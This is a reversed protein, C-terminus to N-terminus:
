AGESSALLGVVAKPSTAATLEGCCVKRAYTNGYTVYSNDPISGAAKMAKVLNKAVDHAYTDSLTIAFWGNTALYATLPIPSSRIYGEAEALNDFSKVQIHRHTFPGSKLSTSMSGPITCIGLKVVAEPETGVSRIAIGNPLRALTSSKGDPLVKMPAVGQARRIRGSRAQPMTLDSYSQSPTGFETPQQPPSPPAVPTPVRQPQALQPQANEGEPTVIQYRQMESKSLYRVDDSDYQLSVQLLAPDVGMEIMYTVIEATMQQVASVADQANLSLDGSFSSRHVGIAGPEALRITGGFFALSCASSCEAARVQMTALGLGRILRGLEMAKPINGGPSHFMVAVPSNSRVLTEFTTLNDQYDFEGSVFVFASGGETKEISFQLGAHVAAAGFLLAIACLIVRFAFFSIM